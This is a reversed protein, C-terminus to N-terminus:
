QYVPFITGRIYNEKEEQCGRHIGKTVIQVKLGSEVNQNARLESRFKKSINVNPPCKAWYKALCIKLLCIIQISDFFLLAFFFFIIKSIGVYMKVVLNKFDFSFDFFFNFFFNFLNKCNETQENMGKEHLQVLFMRKHEKPKTIHPPIYPYQPPEFNPRWWNGITDEVIWDQKVGDQRGLTQLGWKINLLEFEINTKTKQKKPQTRTM